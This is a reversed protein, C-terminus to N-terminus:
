PGVTVLVRAKGIVENGNDDQGQFSQYLILRGEVAFNAADAYLVIDDTWIKRGFPEIRWPTRIPGVIKVIKDNPTRWEGTRSKIEIGVGNTEALTWSVTGRGDPSITVKSPYVMVTIGAHLTSKPHSPPVVTNFVSGFLGVCIFITGAIGAVIRGGWGTKGPVEAGFIKFGGGLLAILLLVPGLVFAAITISQPM